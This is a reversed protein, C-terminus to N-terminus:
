LVKNRIKWCNNGSGQLRLLVLVHCIVCYLKHCSILIVFLWDWKMLGGIDTKVIKVFHAVYGVLYGPQYIM